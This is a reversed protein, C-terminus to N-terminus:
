GVTTADMRAVNRGSSGNDLVFAAACRISPQDWKHSSRAVAAALPAVPDNATRRPVAAVLFIGGHGVIFKGNADVNGTRAVTHSHHGFVSEHGSEFHFQLLWSRGDIKHATAVPPAIQAM